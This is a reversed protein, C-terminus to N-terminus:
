RDTAEGEADAGVLECWRRNRAVHNQIAAADLSLSEDREIAMALASQYLATDHTNLASLTERERESIVPATPARNRPYGFPEKLGLLKELTAMLQSFRETVGVITFCRTLAGLAFDFDARSVERPGAGITGALRRTQGDRGEPVDPHAAFDCIETRRAVTNLPHRRRRRVYHYYSVIRAVPERLVLLHVCPSATWQYIPDALDYHGMLIRAPDDAGRKFLTYPNRAWIPGNVHLLDHPRYHRALVQEISTGGTKPVHCYVVGHPTEGSGSCPEQSLSDFSRVHERLRRANRERREEVSLLRWRDLWTPDFPLLPPADKTM